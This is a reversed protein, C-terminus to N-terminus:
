VNERCNLYALIRFICLKSILFRDVTSDAMTLGFDGQVWNEVVLIIKNTM